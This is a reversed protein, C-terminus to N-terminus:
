ISYVLSSYVNGFSLANSLPAENITLHSPGVTHSRPECWVAM